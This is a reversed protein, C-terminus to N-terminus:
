HRSRIDISIDRSSGTPWWYNLVRPESQVIKDRIHALRKKNEVLECWQALKPAGGIGLQELGVLKLISEPLSEIGECESVILEKLSALDGLWEPLATLRPCKHLYLCELSTLHRMSEPIYSLNTWDSIALQELRIVEGLWQPLTSMSGCNILLLKQLCTLQKMSELPAELGPYMSIKLKELYTLEGLWKPLETRVNDHLHLTKVIYSLKQIIEQPGNTLYTCCTITLNYTPFLHHFLRWQELPVKSSKVELSKPSATYSGGPKRCDEWQQTPVKMKGRKRSPLSAALEIEGEEDWSSLVNDSNEIKWIKTKPPCPKLRLKPCDSIILEWLYPFMFEQEDDDQGYSYMTNWVELNEMQYLHFEELQPFAGPGACCFGVGITSISDMGGMVLKKLRPLQGLPPMSSCKRLDWLVIETLDPLHHTVGMFWTPFCVTHYGRLKFYDLTVPPVLKGLVEIDEVSRRADRTWELSLAKMEHKENLKITHVEEPSMVNDLKSILLETPNVHRLLGINSTSEGDNARVEFYPLGINSKSPPITSKDIRSCGTVNLIKLSDMKLMCEPLTVLDWCGSLDLTHLKRLSGISEPLRVLGSNDSWFLHVLNPLTCIRDVFSLIEEPSRNQFCGSVGLFRLETLNRIVEEQLMSVYIPGPSLTYSLNLHQISTLGDFSKETIIIRWSHSLDLHVLNKLNAFTEPLKCVNECNSIDLHMLGKIDGISDPLEFINSGSLNIYSLGSLKTFSHQLMESQLRPANLYRLHVLESISAPLYGIHCGSVDVVQLSKAPLFSDDELSQLSCDRFHLARITVPSDTLSKLPKGCDTLWAYQYNRGGTNSANLIKDVILLRALDHVLDHMIFLTLGKKYAKSNKPSVPHQLFSWGLLQVIYKECLQMCSLLKTPKIFGLSIWQHILDEKIIDHGKPFIACYTFCSMLCPAMKTYSLKLSALVHNPLTADELISENWIENDKVEMWQELKMPRLTFGLSQAALAVGTCKLAIEKGIDMLQEKDDRAEFNSRQKIIDWCMDNTLPEIQYPGINTSINDAVHKSRTTVLVIINFKGGLNLMDKLNNLQFLNDEWLNDLVILINKKGFLLEMLCNRIMETEDIHSEKGSLQSIIINGVENLDFIPSLSVWVRSYYEFCTDNYILKAFTTKGIGGIGYIPLITIQQTISQLLSAMIKRKEEKRGVVFGEGVDLSNERVDVSEVEDYSSSTMLNDFHQKQNTIDNPEIRMEMKEHITMGSFPKHNIEQPCKGCNAEIQNMKHVIKAIDLRKKSDKEVCNLAIQTCTEVQHCYEELMSDSLTVQLLRNRWNTKVLNIFEDSPIDACKNYGDPGSIIQIMLVGLSFIDFKKSVEGREIYEPPQYGITGLPSKTTRTLEKDDLIRSLGFDALKPVMNKDLLVNAPKLDLHHLPEELEEHMHKLGECTGKMIKYRTNWDLGSFEDSLHKQLSGNDMYELCLARHTEEVLVQIGYFEMPKQEIQYCYGYLRVINEHQLKALNYFENQFQKHGLDAVNDRLKKVAVHNGNKTLGKYVVGFAGEGLKREESFGDTIEELLQFPVEEPEM